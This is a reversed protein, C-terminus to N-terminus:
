NKFCRYIRHESAYFNSIAIIIDHISSSFLIFGDFKVVCAITLTFECSLLCFPQFSEYFRILLFYSLKIEKYQLYEICIKFYQLTLKFDM